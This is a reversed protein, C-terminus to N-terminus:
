SSMMDCQWKAQWEVELETLISQALRHSTQERIRIMTERICGADQRSQTALGFILMPWAALYSRTWIDAFGPQSLIAVALKGQWSPTDVMLSGKGAHVASSLVETTRPLPIKGIVWDYLISAAIAYLSRFCAHYYDDISLESTVVNHQLAYIEWQELETAIRSMVHTEKHMPDICLGIIDRILNYLSLPISLIPSSNPSTAAALIKQARSIFRGDVLFTPALPKRMLLSFAQFTVSELAVRDLARTTSM